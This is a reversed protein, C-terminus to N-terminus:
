GRFGIAASVQGAGLAECSYSGGLPPSAIGVLADGASSKLISLEYDITWLRYCFIVAFFYWPSNVMTWRSEGIGTKIIASESCNFAM